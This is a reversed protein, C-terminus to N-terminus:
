FPYFEFGDLSVWVNATCPFQSITEEFNPSKCFYTGSAPDFDADLIIEQQQCQFKVKQFGTESFGTGFFTIETTGKSPGIRPNFSLTRVPAFFVVMDENSFLKTFNREETGETIRRPARECHGEDRFGNTDGGWGWAGGSVDIAFSSNFGCAIDRFRLLPKKAIDTRLLTPHHVAKINKLDNDM